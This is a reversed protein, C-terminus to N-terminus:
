KRIILISYILMLFNIVTYTLIFEFLNSHFLSFGIVELAVFGLLFYAKKIKNISLGYILILNSFSLFTLSLGSLFLINAVGIYQQGFLISIILKPVVLYLILATFSVLGTILLAKKLLYDTKKGAEHSESALPLIAKSVAVTGFFIAKGLISAIAYMGAIEPAFFRKAFIVDLNYILTIAIITYIFPLSYDYIGKFEFKENKAKLVDKILLFVTSFGIIGAIIIGILAGYVKWGIFVLAVAIGLKLVAELLLNIGLSYFRKKGQLVGRVISISIVYFIISGTLLLLWVDIQLFNSLFIAIPIFILFILLAVLNGKKLSKFLLHKIKSDQKKMSLRSTYSTVVNQIAENPISLIQILSILVALVAYDAPGLFRATFFHFVYNVANFLGLLIILILSGKVLEDKTNM